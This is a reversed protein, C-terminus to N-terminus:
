STAAVSDGAMDTLWEITEGEVGLNVALNLVKSFDLGEELIVDHISPIPLEEFFGRLHPRFEPKSIGSALISVLDDAKIPRPRGASLKRAAIPAASRRKIPTPLFALGVVHALNLATELRCNGKRKLRSLTEAKIGARAALTRQDIGQKNAASLITGIFGSATETKCDDWSTDM